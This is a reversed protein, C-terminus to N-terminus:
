GATNPEQEAATEDAAPPEAEAAPEAAEGAPEQNQDAGASDSDPALREESDQEAPVPTESTEESEAVAADETHEKEDEEGEEIAEPVGGRRLDGDSKAAAAAAAAAEKLAAQEAANAAALAAQANAAAEAAKALKAEEEARREKALIESARHKVQEDLLRRAEREAHQAHAVSQQLAILDTRRKAATSTLGTAHGHHLLYEGVYTIPDVGRPHTSSTDYGSTVLSTLASSLLPGVTHKLYDTDM